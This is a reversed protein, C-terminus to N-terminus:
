DRVNELRKLLLGLESDITDVTSCTVTKYLDEGFVRGPGQTFYNTRLITDLRSLWAEGRLLAASPDLTVAFERLVRAQIALRDAPSFNRSQGLLKLTKAYISQNKHMYNSSLVVFAVGFIGGLVTMTILLTMGDSLPPHIDRLKSVLSAHDMM